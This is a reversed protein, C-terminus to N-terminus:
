FEATLFNKRLLKKMLSVEQSYQGKPIIWIGINMRQIPYATRSLDRKYKEAELGDMRVPPM